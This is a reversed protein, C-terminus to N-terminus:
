DELLVGINLKEAKKLLDVGLAIDEIGLGGSGFLIPSSNSTIKKNGTIIDSLHLVSDRNIKGIHIGDIISNGLISLHSYSPYGYESLYNDYMGIADVVKVSHNWLVDNPIKIFSMALILSSDKIWDKRFIPMQHIDDFDFGANVSIIDSEEVAEKMSDVVLIQIDNNELNSCKEVFRNISTKTHGKIKIKRISPYTKLLGELILSNIKGPGIIAITEPEHDYLWKAACISVAATRYTTLVNAPLIARRAGTDPDNLILTYNTEVIGLPTEIVGRVNPGHWKLGVCNFRGGLYSPM